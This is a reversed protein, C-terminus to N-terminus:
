DDTLGDLAAFNPASRRAGAAAEEAILRDHEAASWREYEEETMAEGDEPGRRMVGAPEEDVVEEAYEIEIAIGVGVDPQEDVVPDGTHGPAGARPPRSDKTLTSLHADFEASVRASWLEAVEGGPHMSLWLTAMDAKDDLAKIRAIVENEGDVDDRVVVGDEDVRTDLEEPIYGIGMLVDQGGRRGLRSVARWLCLDETYAEWPLVKGQSSRARLVWVGSPNPAYSDILGARLAQQPTFSAEIPNEPDDKRTLTVTVKLDGSEVTGEEVIKVKHGASRFLGLAVRPSIAAKGEIVDIGALAAMPALGLMAGTEMVLLIKAPSPKGTAKDFLGRPILDAAGSLTNAYAARVNISSKQYAVVETTTM